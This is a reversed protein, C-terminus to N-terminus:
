RQSGKVKFDTITKGDYRYVGNISGFWISGDKAELIGFLIKESAMIENLVPKKNYLYKQDYRSLKWIGAGNPNVSGTTWINGKKDEIIAAASRNAVKIYNKGDYRWLNDTTFLTDGRKDGIISAGFWINGKRDEIISHVNNFAKGDKNKFVSFAKGDYVLAERNTGFWFNGKKDQLIPGVGNNQRHQFTTGTRDEHMGNGDLIYNHFSNGDFCSAGGSVGFWINGQKDEYIHTVENSLLGEKTRFNTFSKGNYCYVGEGISGFWLNGKRDELVCFFRVSTVKSTINIFSKGDYRFIGDFAAMWISGKRDQIINRTIWKPGGPAILGKVKSTISIIKGKAQKQRCSAFFIFMLFFIFVPLSKM